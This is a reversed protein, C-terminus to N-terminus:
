ELRFDEANRRRYEDAAGPRLKMTFAVRKM